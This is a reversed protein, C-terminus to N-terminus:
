HFCPVFIPTKKLVHLSFPYFHQESSLIQNEVKYICTQITPSSHRSFIFCPCFNKSSHPPLNVAGCLFFIEEASLYFFLMNGKSWRFSKQRNDSCGIYTTAGVVLLFGGAFNNYCTSPESIRISKQSETIACM